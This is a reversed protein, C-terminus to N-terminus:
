AVGGSLSFLGTSQYISFVYDSRRTRPCGLVPKLFHTQRCGRMAAHLMLSTWGRENSTCTTWVPSREGHVRVFSRVYPFAHTRVNPSDASRHRNRASEPMPTDTRQRSSIIIIVDMRGIRKASVYTCTRPGHAVHNAPAPLCAPLNFDTDAGGGINRPGVANCRRCKHSTTM